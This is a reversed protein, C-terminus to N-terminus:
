SVCFPLPNVLSLFHTPIPANLLHYTVLVCTQRIHQSVPQVVLASPSQVWFGAGLFLSGVCAVLVIGLGNSQPIPIPEEYSQDCFQWDMVLRAANLIFRNAPHAFCTIVTTTHGRGEKRCASQAGMLATTRGGNSERKRAVQASRKCGRHVGQASRM